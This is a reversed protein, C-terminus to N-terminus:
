RSAMRVAENGVPASTVTHNKKKVYEKLKNLDLTKSNFLSLETELEIVTKNDFVVENRKTNRIKTYKKSKTEKRRQDQSYRFTVNKSADDVCYVLDCKGPDIAIIKKNEVLSYDELEDIYM